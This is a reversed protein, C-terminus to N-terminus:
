LTPSWNYREPAAIQAKVRSCRGTQVCSLSKAHLGNTSYTLHRIKVANEPGMTRYGPSQRPELRTGRLLLHRGADVFGQLPAFMQQHLGAGTRAFGVRIQDRHQQGAFSHDDRSARTRELILQKM